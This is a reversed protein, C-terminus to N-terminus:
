QQGQKLHNLGGVGIMPLETIAVGVHQALSNWIIGISNL